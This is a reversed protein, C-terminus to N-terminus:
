SRLNLSLGKDDEQVSLFAAQYGPLLKGLRDDIGFARAPYLSCVRLAEEKKLKVHNILNNCAKLMTLASGSLVGNAEYRDEALSHQYPGDETFTVADTIVFLRDQLIKQAVQIASWDVHYGDPIVSAMVSPHNFIAGVMGPSRHQFPTMANFLHTALQIGLEFGQFAQEYSANSHGASIRIAHSKLIEIVEPSCCEPALTIMKIVDGGEELLEVVQNTTPAYMFEELHAGKKAPNLWPGELHLGLCGKGGKEWYARIVKICSSIVAPSNTAVTPLFFHTGGKLCEQHLLELTSVEPFLSFLKGGAGYIQLDIFAPVLTDHGPTGQFSTIDVIRGDEVVLLCNHLWDTGTFLKRTSVTTTSM